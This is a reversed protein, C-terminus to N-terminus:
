VPDMSCLIKPRLWGSSVLTCCGKGPNLLNPRGGVGNEWRPRQLPFARLFPWAKKVPAKLSAWHSHLSQKTQGIWLSDEQGLLVADGGVVMAKTMTTGVDIGAFARNRIM